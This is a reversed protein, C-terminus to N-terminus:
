ICQNRELLDTLSQKVAGIGHLATSLRTGYMTLSNQGVHEQIWSFNPRRLINMNGPPESTFAFGTQVESLLEGQVSYIDTNSASIDFDIQLVRASEQTLAAPNFVIAEGGVGAAATALGGGLSHGVFTIQNSPIANQILRALRVAKEYQFALRGMEQEINSLWDGASTFDTGAFTVIYEDNELDHYVESHFSGDHLDHLSIGLEDLDAEVFRTHCLVDVYACEAVEAYDQTRLLTVCDQLPDTCLAEGDAKLSRREGVERGHRAEFKRAQNLEEGSVTSGVVLEKHAEELFESAIGAIQGPQAVISLMLDLNTRTRRSKQVFNRVDSITTIQGNNFDQLTGSMWNVDVLRGTQDYETNLWHTTGDLALTYQIRSPYGLSDVALVTLIDQPYHQVYDNVDLIREHQRDSEPDATTNHGTSRRVLEVIQGNGDLKWKFTRTTGNRYNVITTGQDHNDGVLFELSVDPLASEGDDARIKAGSSFSIARGTEDYRWQALVQGTSDARETLLAPNLPDQYQYRRELNNQKGKPYRVSVLNQRSSYSYTVASGDPSEVKVLHGPPSVNQSFEYAPLSVNGPAYHLLLSRGLDDSVSHLRAERYVLNLSSGDSFSIGTLYSGFFSLRRGDPLQWIHRNESTEVVHGDKESAAFFRDGQKRFIILRGDSQVIQRVNIGATSLVVSYSHRWGNGLGLNQAAYASNYHRVLSLHSKGLRVDVESQYKNGSIVDIPNGVHGSRNANPANSGIDRSTPCAPQGASLASSCELNAAHLQSDNVTLATVALVLLSTRWHARIWEM